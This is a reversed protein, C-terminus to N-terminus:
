DEKPPLRYLRIGPHLYLVTGRDRRFLLFGHLFLDEYFSKRRAFDEAEAPQPRVSPLFFRGYDSESVAVHTVGRARLADLTGLDAAYRKAIVTQSFAGFRLADAPIGPDPLEVRSDKAIVAGPPLEARVWAILEKNDDQQFAALYQRFTRWDLPAPAAVVQCVVLVAGCTALALGHRMRGTVLRAADVVGLGALLTFVAAAPLFYRDNSKPSFSLALTYAFPFGIVLWEALSVARRERWRAALFCALLVWIAPTTNDRFINWYQTHPVSRTVGRQGHVVLGMERGLSKEFADLNLLLPLNVVVLVGGMAAIFCAASRWRAGPALWLLPLAAGLMFAGIYKGSIALAVAAGLMAARWPDPKRWFVFAALFTLSVGMLLATDEKMYHSLEFIQHHLMLSLGTVVAAGWGRWVFALLALAVVAVASFGASVWRGLEVVEQEGLGGGRAAMVCKTTALLLMPHHFNWDGTMVQHVKEWEDPHYFFPFGNHRAHLVLTVGFLLILWGAVLLTRGRSAHPKGPSADTM